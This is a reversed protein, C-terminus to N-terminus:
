PGAMWADTLCVIGAAAARRTQWAAAVRFRDSGGIWDAQAQAEQGGQPDGCTSRVVGHGGGNGGRARWADLKGETAESQEILAAVVASGRRMKRAKKFADDAQQKPTGKTTDFTLETEQGGNDWDEVVVSKTDDKIRYLNSVVLTAWQSLREAKRAAEAEKQLSARKKRSTQLPTTLGRQSCLVFYFQRRPPVRSHRLIGRGRSSRLWCRVSPSRSCATVSPSRTHQRQANRVSAGRGVACPPRDCPRLVSHCGGSGKPSWMWPPM